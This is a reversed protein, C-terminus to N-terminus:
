SIYYSNDTVSDVATICSPAWCCRLSHFGYCKYEWGFADNSRFNPAVSSDALRRCSLLWLSNTSGVQGANLKLKTQTFYWFLPVRDNLGRYWYHEWFVYITRFGNRWRIWFLDDDIVDGCHCFSKFLLMLVMTRLAWMAIMSGEHSPGYCYPKRGNNCRRTSMMMQSQNSHKGLLFLATYNTTAICHQPTDM